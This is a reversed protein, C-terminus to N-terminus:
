RASGVPVSVRLVTGGAAGDAVNLRGGVLDVRDRMGALGYGTTSEASYVGLGRGNDRVEVALEGNASTLSVSAVSARSHKRVNALGEQICRLMVVELERDLDGPQVAVDVRIGTEQMFRASLRGVTEALTSDGVRVPSMATVLARAETLADCATEEILGVSLQAAVLGHVVGGTARGEAGGAARGEPGDGAVVEAAPISALETDARQALMVLSTLSQAITDHIERALRERETSSGADRHLAALEDQAATLEQLLQKHRQGDQDIRTIWLGLVIAFLLSVGEIAVAQLLIEPGGGLGLYFGIGVTLALLGSQVIALLTSGSLVWLLPFILAQLTAMNPLFYVAVGTGVIVLIRFAVSAVPSAFARHGFAAYGAGIVALTILAGAASSASPADALLAVAALLLLTGAFALSWWHKTTM